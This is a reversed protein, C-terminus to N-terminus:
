DVHHNKWHNISSQQTQKWVKERTSLKLKRIANKSVPHNMFLDWILGTRANEIALLMPGQDIGLYVESAEKPQLRFADLFGYGGNKPDRWVLPSGDTAKLDRYAQLATVSEKPLMPMVGAAGYPPVVGNCWQDCNMVNPQIGPVCYGNRTDCPSLGWRNESLTPYTRSAELCRNRHTKAARRSNEFWDVRPGPMGFDSPNDPGILGYDIWCHSFFYMFLGGSWATVFPLDNQYKEVNRELQYYDSAPVGNKAAGVALYYIIREEDSARTWHWPSKEGPGNVGKESNAKWGMSLFQKEQNRYYSWNVESIIKDGLLEVEGGFYESATMVGAQFLAHDVTSAMLEYKNRAQDFDPLGGTGADLFHFYIGAKKNDKRSVLASLITIARERAELRSIWGREVGIPLSSLQFGVAAISCISDTTRDLALHAPSGVENWFYLFCGKEIQNLFIEEERTFRYSWEKYSEESAEIEEVTVPVGVVESEKAFLFGGDCILAVSLVAIKGIDAM